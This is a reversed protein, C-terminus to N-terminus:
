RAGEAAVAWPAAEAAEAAAEPAVTFVVKNYWVRREALDAFVAPAEDLHPTHSILPAVQLERGLRAIVMDWDSGGAPMVKANWTGYIRLERRVVTSLLERPVTVDASVDGMLVVQGMTAAATLAQVV